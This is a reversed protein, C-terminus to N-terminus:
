DRVLTDSDVVRLMLSRQKIKTGGEVIYGM